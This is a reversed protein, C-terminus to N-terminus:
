ITERTCNEQVRGDPWIITVPVGYQWAIRITAWTGSRLVEHDDLPMALLFHSEAVIHKNRRLPPFVDYTIGGACWARKSEITCPHKMIRYWLADGFAKVLAGHFTADAGICDGHHFEHLMGTDRHIRGRTEIWDCLSQFQMSTVGNSTGTFGWIVTIM